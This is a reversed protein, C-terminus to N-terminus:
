RRPIEDIRLVGDRLLRVICRSCLYLDERAVEALHPMRARLRTLADNSIGGYWVLKDALIRRKACCRPPGEGAERDVVPGAYYVGAPLEPGAEEGQAAPAAMLLAAGGSGSEAMAREALADQWTKYNLFDGKRDM